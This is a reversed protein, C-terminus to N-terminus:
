AQRVLFMLHSVMDKVTFNKNYSLDIKKINIIIKFIEFLNEKISTELYLLSMSQFAAAASPIPYAM